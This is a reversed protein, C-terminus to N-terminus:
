EREKVGTIDTTVTVISGDPSRDDRILLWRGERYVEVANPPNQHEDIRRTVWAERDEEAVPKPLHHLIARIHADYTNGEVLTSAAKGAQDRFRRNCLVFRDDADWFAIGDSVNEIADLFRVTSEVAEERAQVEATIETGTGCYGLFEGGTAYKPTGSLRFWRRESSKGVGQAVTKVPESFIFHRFPQRAELTELFQPLEKNDPDNEIFWDHRRGIFDSSSMGSLEYFRDSAYTFRLEPDMEWLWDSAANAFDDLREESKRLADDAIAQQAESTHENWRAALAALVAVAGSAAIAGVLLSGNFHNLVAFGGALALGFSIAAWWLHRHFEAKM